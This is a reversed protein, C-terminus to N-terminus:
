QIVVRMGVHSGFESLVAGDDSKEASTYMFRLQHEGVKAAFRVEGEFKSSYTGLLTGDLFVTLEGDGRIEVDFGYYGKTEIDWALTLNGNPLFIKNGDISATSYASSVEISDTGAVSAIDNKWDREFAGATYKGATSIKFPNGNFDMVTRLYEVDALGYGKSHRSLAYNSSDSFAIPNEKIATELNVQAKDSERYLTNYAQDWELVPSAIKGDVVCNYIYGKEGGNNNRVITPSNVFTCNYAKAGDSIAGNGSSLTCDKFLSSIVEAAVGRVFGRGTVTCDTIKCRELISGVVIGRSAICNSIICDVVYAGSAGNIAAGYTNSGTGTGATRGNCLTFGQVCIALSQNALAICRVANEGMGNDTSDLEGSIFTEDAGDIAKILMNHQYKGPLAIRTELGNVKTSGENYDGKKAYIVNDQDKNAQDIAKQITKYPAAESGDGSDDNGNETDVFTMNATDIAKVELAQNPMAAMGWISGDMKPWAVKGNMNYRILAKGLGPTFKIQFVTPHEPLGLFTYRCPIIYKSNVEYSGSSEYSSPSLALCSSEFEVASQSAGCNVLETSNAKPYENGDYDTGLMDEAEPFMEAFETIHEIAGAGISVANKRLRYDEDYPSYVEPNETFNVKHLNECEKIEVGGVVNAPDVDSVINYVNLVTSAWNGYHGHLFISNCLKGVSYGIRNYSNVITCNVAMKCYAIVGITGGDSQSLREGDESRTSDNGDFVCAFCNVGRTASGYKSAKNDKFLCRAAVTKNNNGVNIAGGRIAQCGIFACDAFYAFGEDVGWINVGGGRTPIIDTGDHYPTSGNCFTIGEFRTGAAATRVEACKVANPGMGRPYEGPTTDWEGVIRTEDRGARGSLSRLTLRKDISVRTRYKKHSTEDVVEMGGSKHDGPFLVVTDNESASDVAKQITLFPSEKSGLANEDNGNVPDVYWEAASLSLSFIYMGLVGFVFRSKASGTNMNTIKKM